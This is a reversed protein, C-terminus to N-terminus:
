VLCDTDKLTSIDLERGWIEDYEPPDFKAFGGTPKFTLEGFYVQDDVSYLDVRVFLHGKSLIKAINLMEEFNNPKIMIEEFSAIDARKVPLKHFQTDYFDLFDKRDDRFYVERCIYLFKPVGNFCYFKYDILGENGNVIQRLYKEAIIKPKVEKYPWEQYYYWPNMKLRANLNKIVREKDLKSKDTCVIVGGSAHNTKLVFENPLQDFDIEEANDWVGLLDNLYEKGITVEIYKRVEFKDVMMTYEPKRDYLSLWQLKENLTKPNNLDIARGMKRKYNIQIMKQPPIWNLYGRKGMVEFLIMPDKLVRAVKDILRM